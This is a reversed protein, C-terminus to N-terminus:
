NLKKRLLPLPSTKPNLKFKSSVVVLHTQLKVYKGGENKVAASYRQKKKKKKAKEL